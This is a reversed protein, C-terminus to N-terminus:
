LGKIFADWDPEKFGVIGVDGALAFPRKVLNGNGALLRLVEDVTMSPLKDKMGLAKYDMGSTNFLRRLEGQYVSLMRKLETLTPPQERIPIESFPVKKSQLYKVGNRCSDCGKYTYVKLQM